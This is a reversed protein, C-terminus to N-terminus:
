RTGILNFLSHRAYKPFLPESKWMNEFIFVKILTFLCDNM